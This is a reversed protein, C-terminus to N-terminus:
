WHSCACRLLLFLFSRLFVRPSARSLSRSDLSQEWLTGTTTTSNCFFFFFFVLFRV